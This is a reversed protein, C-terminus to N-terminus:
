WYLRSLLFPPSSEVSNHIRRLHRHRRSPSRFSNYTSRRKILILGMYNM